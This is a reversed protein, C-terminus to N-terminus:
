DNVYNRYVQNNGTLAFRCSSKNRLNLYDTMFNLYKTMKNIAIKLLKFVKSKEM